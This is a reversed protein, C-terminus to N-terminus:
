NIKKSIIQLATKDKLWRLAQIKEAADRTHFSEIEIGDLTALFYRYKKLAQKTEKSLLNM